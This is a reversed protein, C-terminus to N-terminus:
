KDELMISKIADMEQQTVGIELLYNTIKKQLSDGSSGYKDLGSMLAKINAVAGSHEYANFGGKVSYFSTFYEKTILTEDVGCLGLLLVTITGTRDRGLSCHFLIPYNDENAFVQIAKKVNPKNEESFIGNYWSMAVSICKLGKVASVPAGGRLDLDTKIGLNGIIVKRGDSNADELQGSRFLIGQKVYKGSETKYGGIDRFNSVNDAKIFRPYGGKTEFVYKMSTEGDASVTWYYKAGVKLNYIDITTEKTKFQLPSSMDDKESISVIYEKDEAAKSDTWAFTIAPPTCVEKDSFGFNVNQISRLSAAMHKTIYESALVIETQGDYPATPIISTNADAAFGVILAGNCFAKGEYAFFDKKETGLNYSALRASEINGKYILSVSVKMSSAGESLLKVNADVNENNIATKIATNIYEQKNDTDADCSLVTSNISNWANLLAGEADSSFSSYTFPIDLHAIYNGANTLARIVFNYQTGEKLEAGYDLFANAYLKAFGGENMELVQPVFWKIDNNSRYDTGQPIVAYEVTKVGDACSITNDTLTVIGAKDFTTKWQDKSDHSSGFAGSSNDLWIGTIAPLEVSQSPIDYVTEGCTVTASFTLKGAKQTTNQVYEESKVTIDAKIKASTLVQALAEAAKTLADKECMSVGQIGSVKCLGQIGTALTISHIYFEVNDKDRAYVKFARIYGDSDALKNFDGVKLDVTTWDATTGAIVCSNIFAANNTETKDLIRFESKSTEGTTMYTITMGTVSSAAIPAFLSVTMGGQNESNACIHFAKKGNHEVFGCDSCTSSDHIIGIGLADPKFTGSGEEFVINVGADFTDGESTVKIEKLSADEYPTVTASMDTYGGETSNTTDTGEANDKCGTQLMVAALLVSATITKLLQKM